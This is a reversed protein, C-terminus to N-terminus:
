QVAIRHLKLAFGDNATVIEEPHIPGSLMHSQGIVLSAALKAM